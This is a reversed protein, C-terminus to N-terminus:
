EYGPDSSGSHEALDHLSLIPNPRVTDVRGSLACIACGCIEYSISLGDRKHVYLYGAGLSFLDETQRASPYGRFDLM